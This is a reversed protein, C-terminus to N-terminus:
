PLPTESVSTPLRDVPRRSSTRCRAFTAGGGFAGAKPGLLHPPGASATARAGPRRREVEVLEVPRVGRAHGISSVHPAIASSTSAPSTRAIPTDFKSRSSISRHSAIRWTSERCGSNLMSTSPAGRGSGTTRPAHAGADTVSSAARRRADEGAGDGPSRTRALAVPAAPRQHSVSSNSGCSRRAGGRSRRPAAGSRRGPQTCAEGLEGEGPVPVLRPDGRAIAPLRLAAGRARRVRRGAVDIQVVAVSRPAPRAAQPRRASLRDPRASSRASGARGHWRAAEVTVAAGGRDARQAHAPVPPAGARPSPRHDVRHAPGGDIASLEGFFDGPLVEGVKKGAGCSRPRARRPGRVADRGPRGRTVIIQGPAFTLEDTDAALRNLHRKTFDTFM